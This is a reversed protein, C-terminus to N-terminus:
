RVETFKKMLNEKYYESISEDKNRSKIQEMINRIELAFKEAEDESFTKGKVHQIFHCYEHAICEVMSWEDPLEGAVYIIKEETSYLGFAMEGEADISDCGHLIKVYVCEEVPYMADLLKLTTDVLENSIKIM